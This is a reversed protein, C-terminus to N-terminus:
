GLGSGAIREVLGDGVHRTAGKVLGAEALLAGPVHAKRWADGPQLPLGLRDHDLEALAENLRGKLLSKRDLALAAGEELEVQVFSLPPQSGGNSVNLLERSEVGHSM